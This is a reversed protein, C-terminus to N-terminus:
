PNAVNSRQQLAFLSHLTLTIEVFFLLKTQSALSPINRIEQVLHKHFAM